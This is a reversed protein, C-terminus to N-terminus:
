RGEEIVQWVRVAQATERVDHVRLIQAGQGLGALGAAISGPARRRAEPEQSIRGISAKRSVGLLVAAGLTQYLSLSRILDLNHEATKGFGIGPDVVLRARPIGAAEATAIREELFDFVDLLVHDYVPNDQMTKPDGQAHMLCVAEAQAAAEAADPDHSLASVDNIMRAGAALAARMTPANRTDISIPATCGAAILGEIVPVVRAIEEDVPVPDSGPRTSEGGIDLIDAGAEALALGHAIAAEPGKFQGGDSFSDNTMNIIGMLRPRDLSLDLLPARAGEARELAIASAPWLAPVAEAPLREPAQNRALVEVERFGFLGGALPRAGPLGAACPIPRFYRRTKVASGNVGHQGDPLPDFGFDRGPRGFRLRGAM